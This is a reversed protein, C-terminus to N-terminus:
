RVKGQGQRRVADRDESDLREKLGLKDATDNLERAVENAEGPTLFFSIASAETIGIQLIVGRKGQDNRGAFVKYNNM